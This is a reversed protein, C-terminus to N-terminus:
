TKAKAFLSGNSSITNRPVTGAPALGSPRASAQATPSIRVVALLGIIIWKLDGAITRRPYYALDNNAKQHFLVARYYQLPDENAPYLLCEDRYAVQSPGFIGPKYELLKQYEETYCDAFDTSEPRPGVFSMDGKLINWFQPLEDLKTRALFRGFRTMRPDHNLTLPLTKDITKYFKRFKYIKFHRGKLGLRTQSFFIPRGDELLIGICILALVPSLLLIGVSALALDLIRGASISTMSGLSGPRQDDYAQRM